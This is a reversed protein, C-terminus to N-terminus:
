SKAKLLEDLKRNMEAHTEKQWIWAESRDLLEREDMQQARVFRDMIYGFAWMGLFAMPIMVLVLTTTSVDVVKRIKDSAALVLLAFNLIVLFRYGLEFRFKQRWLFGRLRALRERDM